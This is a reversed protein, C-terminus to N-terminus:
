LLLLMAEEETIETLENEPFSFEKGIFNCYDKNLHLNELNNVYKIIRYRFNTKLLLVTKNYNLFYRNM